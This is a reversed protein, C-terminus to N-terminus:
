AGVYQPDARDEAPDVRSAGPLLRSLWGGKSAESSGEGAAPQATAGSIVLYFGAVLAITATMIRTPYRLYGKANCTM